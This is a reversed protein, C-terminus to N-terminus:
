RKREKGTFPPPRESPHHQHNIARVHTIYAPTREQIQGDLQKEVHQTVKIRKVEAQHSLGASYAASPPDLLWSASVQDREVSSQGLLCCRRDTAHSRRGLITIPSTSSMTCPASGPRAGVADEHSRGAAFPDALHVCCAYRIAASSNGQELVSSVSGQMKRVASAVLFPSSDVAASSSRRSLITTTPSTRRLASRVRCQAPLPTECLREVMPTSKVSFIRSTLPVTTLTCPVESRGKPM